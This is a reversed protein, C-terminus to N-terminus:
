LQSEILAKEVVKELTTIDAKTLNEMAEFPFMDGLLEKPVSDSSVYGLEKLVRVSLVVELVYSDHSECEKLVNVVDDFVNQHAEEGQMVRRLLLIVNRILARKKRESQVAYFNEIPESGAVKWGSKGRILTTRILSTDQLAYRQKSTEKRVSKASVFVMGAERAFLLINKDATNRDWSGCVLADTIYTQYSM